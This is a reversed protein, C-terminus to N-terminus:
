HLGFKILVRECNSANNRAEFYGIFPIDENQLCLSVLYLLLSFESSKYSNVSRKYTACALDTWYSGPDM